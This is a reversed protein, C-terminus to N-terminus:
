SALIERPDRDATESLSRPAPVLGINAPHPELLYGGSAAGGLLMGKTMPSWYEKNLEYAEQAQLKVKMRMARRREDRKIRAIEALRAEEAREEKIKKEKALRAHMKAKMLERRREDAAISAAVKKLKSRRERKRAKSGAERRAAEEEKLQLYAAEKMAMISEFRKKQEAAVRKGRAALENKRRTGENEVLISSSSAKPQGSLMSTSRSSLAFPSSMTGSGGGLLAVPQLTKLSAAEQTASAFTGCTYRRVAALDKCCDLLSEDYWRWVGKWVRGPDVELANLATVLTGLGCYAPENQSLRM